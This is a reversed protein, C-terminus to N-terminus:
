ASVESDTLHAPDSLARGVIAQVTPAIADAQALWKRRGVNTLGDWDPRKGSSTLLQLALEARDADSLRYTDCTLTWSPFRCDGDAHYGRICDENVWCATM